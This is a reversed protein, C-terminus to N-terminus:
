SFYFGLNNKNSKAENFINYWIAILHQTFFYRILCLQYKLISRYFVM